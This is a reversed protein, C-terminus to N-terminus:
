PTYTFLAPTTAILGGGYASVNVAGTSSNAPLTCTVTTDSVLSFNTCVNNPYKHKHGTKKRLRFFLSLTRGKLSPLKM